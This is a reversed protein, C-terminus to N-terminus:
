CKLHNATRERYELHKLTTKHNRRLKILAMRKWVCPSIWAKRAKPTHPEPSAIDTKGSTHQFPPSRVCAVPEFSLQPSLSASTHITLRFLRNQFQFHSFPKKKKKIHNKNNKLCHFVVSKPATKHNSICTQVWVIIVACLLLFSASSWWIVRPIVWQGM